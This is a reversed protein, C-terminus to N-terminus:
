SIHDGDTEFRLGNMFEADPGYRETTPDFRAFVDPESVIEADSTEAVNGTQGGIELYRDLWGPKYNPSGPNGSGEVLALKMYGDKSTKETDRNFGYDRTLMLAAAYVRTMKRVTAPVPDAYPTPDVASMREDILSQAEDRLKTVTAVPWPSYRYDLTVISGNAPSASLTVTHAVANVSAIAVPSGNVYAVVDTADVVDDYNSDSFPGHAATFVTNAGNALGDAQEGLVPSSMGAEELIAQLTEYSPM